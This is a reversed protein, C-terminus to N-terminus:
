AARKNFVAKELKQLREMITSTEDVLIQRLMQNLVTQYRGGSKNALEKLAKLVDEDLYTTVRIKTGRLEYRSMKPGSIRKMKNPDPIKKKM